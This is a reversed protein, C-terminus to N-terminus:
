EIRELYNEALQKWDVRNFAQQALSTTFLFTPNVMAHTELKNQVWGKLKQTLEIRAAQDPSCIGDKVNPNYERARWITHAMQLIKNYHGKDNDILLAVTWTEDNTFAM